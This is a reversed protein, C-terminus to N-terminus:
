QQLYFLQLYRIRYMRLLGFQNYLSLARGLPSTSLRSTVSELADHIYVLPPTNSASRENIEAVDVSAVGEGM